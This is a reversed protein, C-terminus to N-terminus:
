NDNPIIGINFHTTKLEKSMSLPVSFNLEVTNKLFKFAVGCGVSTMHVKKSIDNFSVGTTSNGYVHFFVNGAYLMPVRYDVGTSIYHSCGHPINACRPSFKGVNVGRQLPSGGLHFRESFPLEPYSMGLSFRLLINPPLKVNVSNQYKIGFPLHSNRLVIFSSLSHKMNFELQKEEISSIYLDRSLLHKGKLGFCIHSMDVDTVLKMVDINNSNLQKNHIFFNCFLSNSPNSVGVSAKQMTCNMKSGIPLNSISLNTRIHPVSFKKMLDLHSLIPHTSGVGLKYFMSYFINVDLNVSHQSAHYEVRNKIGYIPKVSGKASITFPDQVPAVSVFIKRPFFLGRSVQIVNCSGVGSIRSVKQCLDDFHENKDKQSLNQSEVMKIYDEILSTEIWLCESDIHIVPKDRRKM